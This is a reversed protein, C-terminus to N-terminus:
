VKFFSSDRLYGSLRPTQTVGPLKVCTCRHMVWAGILIKFIGAGEQHLLGGHGKGTVTGWPAFREASEKRQQLHTQDTRSRLPLPPAGPGPTKMRVACCRHFRGTCSSQVATPAKVHGQLFCMQPSSHLWQIPRICGELFYAQFHQQHSGSVTAPMASTWCRWSFIPTQNHPPLLLLKRDWTIKQFGLQRRSPIGAERM